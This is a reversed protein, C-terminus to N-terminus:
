EHPRASGNQRGFQAHGISDQLLILPPLVPAENHSKTGRGVTARVFEPVISIPCNWAIVVAPRRSRCQTQSEPSPEQDRFDCGARAMFLIM